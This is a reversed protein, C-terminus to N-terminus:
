ILGIIILHNLNMNLITLYLFKADLILSIKQYILLFQNQERIYEDNLNKFSYDTKSVDVFCIKM